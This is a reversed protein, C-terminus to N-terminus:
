FSFKYSLQPTFKNKLDQNYDRIADTVLITSYVGAGVAGAISTLALADAFNTHQNFAVLAVGILVFGAAGYYNAKRLKIKAGSSVNEILPQISSLTYLNRESGMMIVPGVLSFSSNLEFKKYEAKAVEGSLNFDPPPGKYSFKNSACGFIVISFLFLISLNFTKM